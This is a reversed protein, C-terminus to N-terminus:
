EGEGGRPPPRLTPDALAERVASVFAAVEVPKVLYASAGAELARQRASEEARATLFVVPLEATSQGERIHLCLRDGDMGPLSLDLVVLDVPRSELIKM